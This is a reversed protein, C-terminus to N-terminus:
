LLSALDLQHNQGGVSAVKIAGIKGALVASRALTWGNVLGYLLGARYADGCGTPDVVATAPSVAIESISGAEYVTAGDGGRTVVVGKLGQAFQAITQGTKSEILSAEYDNVTLYDAQKILAVLEEGSFAPLAQGPDFIFPIQRAALAACRALMGDRGDPSVIALAINPVQDLSAEQSRFMAGGHFSTLQNHDSDTTIHCQATYADPLTKLAETSWGHAEFRAHYDAGDHGITACVVPALGLQKASYAINSACGGWERRLSDILFSVNLQYTKDPLIHDGFRGNFHGITDYAVSGCILVRHANM